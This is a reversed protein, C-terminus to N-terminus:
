YQIFLLEIVVSTMFTSPSALTGGDVGSYFFNFTGVVPLGQMAFRSHCVRAQEPAYYLVALDKKNPLMDTSILVTDETQSHDFDKAVISQVVVEDVDFGINIFQEFKIRGGAGFDKIFVTEINKYPRRSSNSLSM